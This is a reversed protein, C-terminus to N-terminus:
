VGLEFVGLLPHFLSAFEFFEEAVAELDIDESVRAFWCFCNMSRARSVRLGRDSLTSFSSRSHTLVEPAKLCCIWDRAVSVRM